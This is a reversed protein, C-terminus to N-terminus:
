TTPPTEDLKITTYGALPQVASHIGHQKDVKIWGKTTLNKRYLSANQHSYGAKAAQERLSPFRGHQQRFDLILSLAYQEGATLRKLQPPIKSTRM